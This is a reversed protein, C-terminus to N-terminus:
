RLPPSSLGARTNLIADAAILQSEIRHPPAGFYLLAKALKLLFNRRVSLDVFPDFFPLM